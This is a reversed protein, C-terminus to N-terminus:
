HIFGRKSHSIFDLIQRAQPCDASQAALESKIEELSLGSRYLTRYARKLGSLADASFGRRKLGESNIGVPRASAGGAAMVYPPLDRTLITAAGTFAHAGVRVFQHVGSYGGLIVWDEIVAHGAAQASNAFITHSGVQCDHAIHAYAMLWNDDGLRTVHADQVTGCNITVYEFITNGDGIECATDEGGYKKDQPRGGLASFHSIRNRRGIRLRGELVVHSGIWTDEGVEVNPGVISYPGISVGRSIRAKPDILATPHIV